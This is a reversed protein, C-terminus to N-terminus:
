PLHGQHLAEPSHEHMTSATAAAAACVLKARHAGLGCSSRVWRWPPYSLVALIVNRETGTNDPKALPIIGVHGVSPYPMLRM